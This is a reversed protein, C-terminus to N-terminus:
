FVKNQLCKNNFQQNNFMKLNIPMILHSNHLRWIILRSNHNLFVMKLKPNIQHSGIKHNNTIQHSNHKIVRIAQRNLITM